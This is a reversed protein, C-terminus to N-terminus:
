IRFLLLDTPCSHVYLCTPMSNMHHCCVEHSCNQLPFHHPRNAFRLSCFALIQTAQCKKALTEGIMYCRFLSWDFFHPPPCFMTQGGPLFFHQGGYQAWSLLPRLINSRCKCSSSSITMVLCQRRCM